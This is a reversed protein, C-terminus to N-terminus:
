KDGAAQEINHLQYEAQYPMQLFRKIMQKPEMEWLKQQIEDAGQRKKEFLVM